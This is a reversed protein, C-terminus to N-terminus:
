DNKERYSSPPVGFYSKFVRSFYQADPIGVMSCIEGINQDSSQLLEAAREMRCKRLYDNPSMGMLERVKRYFNTRGMGFQSAIIDINLNPNRMRANVIRELKRRFREDEKSLESSETADDDEDAIISMEEQEPEIVQYSTSEVIPEAAVESVAPESKAVAAQSEISENEEFWAAFLDTPIAPRRENIAQKRPKPDIYEEALEPVPVESVNEEVTEEVAVAEEVIPDEEEDEAAAAEAAAALAEEVFLEKEIEEEPTDEITEEAVPAEVIPVDVSEEETEIAEEEATEEHIVETETTEEEVIPTEEIAEETIIEDNVENVEEVCEEATESVTEAAVAVVTEEVTEEATKEADFEEPMIDPHKSVTHLMRSLNAEEYRMMRMTDRLEVVEKKLMTAERWKIGCMILAIVTIVILLVGVVLWSTPLSTLLILTCYRM